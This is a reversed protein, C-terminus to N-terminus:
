DVYIIDKKNIDVVVYSVESLLGEYEDKTAILALKIAHEEQEAGIKKIQKSYVKGNSVFGVEVEFINIKKM